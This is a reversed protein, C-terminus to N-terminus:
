LKKGLLDWCVGDYQTATIQSMSHYRQMSRLITKKCDGISLFNEKVRHIINELIEDIRCFMTDNFDVRM